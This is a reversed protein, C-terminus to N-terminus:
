PEYDDYGDNKKAIDGFAENAIDFKSQAVAASNVPQPPIDQESVADELYSFEAEKEAIAHIETLTITVKMRDSPAFAVIRKAEEKVQEKELGAYFDFEISGEINAENRYLNDYRMSSKFDGRVLTTFAQHEDNNFHSIAKEQAELINNATTSVGYIGEIIFTAHYRRRAEGVVGEKTQNVERLFESYGM